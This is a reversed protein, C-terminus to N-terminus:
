QDKSLEVGAQKNVTSKTRRIEIERAVFQKAVYPLSRRKFVERKLTFHMAEDIASFSLFFDSNHRCWMTCCYLFGFVGWWNVHWLDSIGHTFLLKRNWYSITDVMQIVNKDTFFTIIWCAHLSRRCTQKKKKPTCNHILRFDNLVILM